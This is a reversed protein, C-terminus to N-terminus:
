GEPLKKFETILVDESFIILPLLFPIYETNTTLFYKYLFFPRGWVHFSISELTSPRAYIIQLRGKPNIHIPQKWVNFVHGAHLWVLLKM